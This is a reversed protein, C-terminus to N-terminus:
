PGGNPGQNEHIIKGSRSECTNNRRGAIGKRLGLVESGEFGLESVGEGTKRTSGDDERHQKWADCIEKM